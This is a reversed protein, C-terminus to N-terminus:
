LRLDEQRIFEERYEQLRGQEKLSIWQDLSKAAKLGSYVASGIRSPGTLVDGAVFVSEMATMQLWRVQGKRVNELGLDHAFPPMATEGIAAVVLDVKLKLTEGDCVLSRCRGSEDPEALRCRALQIEEVRDKGLIRLPSVLELCRAGTKELINMEHLGCPAENRTRRYILSVEDAGEALAAHVVDVATFGAGIVAVKRGKITPVKMRAMDYRAARVPFLFELGSYVGQLNSGPINLRRSKWTGTCILVADNDEMRGGLSKYNLVFDDGAENHMPESGCIKTRLHFKVKSRKKLDDVAQEIKERSIRHAPIGFVMLGGARPLKDYVEVQYGMCALYGTAALGSPGAGIVAVKRNNKAPPTNCLFTFNM